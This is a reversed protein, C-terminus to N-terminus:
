QRYIFDGKRINGGFIRVGYAEGGSIFGGSIQCDILIGGSIEGGSIECDRIEGCKIFGDHVVCRFFQGGFFRGGFYYGGFFEGAIVKCDFYGASIKCGAFVRGNKGVWSKGNQQIIEDNQVFGGLDGVKVCFESIDVLSRIRHLTASTHKKNINFGSTIKEDTLEYFKM